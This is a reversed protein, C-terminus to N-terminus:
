HAEFPQRSMTECVIHVPCDWFTREARKASDMDSFIGFVVSGSGTMSAGLAGADQMAAIYRDIEPAFGVAAPLLDNQLAAAIDAPSGQELANLMASSPNYTRAPKKGLDLSRFLAGTSIGRNGRVLLLPLAASPAPTLKEGIGECLACGGHLCFPVDAGVRKAIDYLEDRSISGFLQQMGHLVAAADASAGGLGAESPIRKKIQIRVGGCGTKERFLRAATFATNVPPLPTTCEVIIGGDNAESLEVTVTDCVDISHMVTRLDHYGDTRKKLVELTLNIKAPANLIIRQETM